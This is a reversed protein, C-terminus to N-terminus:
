KLSFTDRTNISIVTVLSKNELFKMLELDIQKINKIGEMCKIGMLFLVLVVQVIKVHWTLNPWFCTRQKTFLNGQLSSM